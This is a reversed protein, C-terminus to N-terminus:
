KSNTEWNYKRYKVKFNKGYVVRQLKGRVDGKLHPLIWKLKELDNDGFDESYWDLIKSLTVTCTQEDVEVEAELFASTASELGKDINDANYIKIPPCSKAGCVLAFHIRPDVPVVAHFRRPDKESFPRTNLLSSAPARNGRLVGNEMDDLSYAHGGICYKTNTFFFMRELFSSPEGKVVMAHIVLANYINIFFAKKEDPTMAYLDVNQLEETAEAYEMFKESNKLLSYNVSTGDESLALEYLAMIKNRLEEAVVAAHRPPLTWYSKVNLGPIKPGAELMLLRYVEKDKGFLSSYTKHNLLSLRQMERGLNIAQEETSAEELNRLMWDTIDEGLAGQDTGFSTIEHSMRKAYRKLVLAREFSAQSAEAGHNRRRQHDAEGNEETGADVKEVLKVIEQPLAQQTEKLGEDLKGQRIWEDLDSAGGIFTGRLFIQPVTRWQTNQVLEDMLEPYTQVDVERYAVGKEKLVAKARRCHKCGATTFVLAPTADREGGGM